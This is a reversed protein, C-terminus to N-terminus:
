LNGESTFTGPSGGSTCRWGKPGGVTATKREIRDGIIASGTAPAADGFQEYLFGTSTNAVAGPILNSKDYYSGTCTNAMTVGTTGNSNLSNNAVRTNTCASFALAPQTGCGGANGTVSALDLGACTIANPTNSPTEVTNAAITVLTMVFAATRDFRIPNGAATIVGNGVVKINKLNAAPAQVLIGDQPGNHRVQNSSITVNSSGSVSIGQGALSGGGPGTGNNSSPMRVVNGNVVCGGPMSIILIGSGQSMSEVTNGSIIPQIDGTVNGTVTIGGPGNLASTTSICCNRVRNDTVELGGLGSGVCYIGAGYFVDASGTIGEVDNGHVINYSEQSGGIYVTIGYGSHATVWNNIVKNSRPLYTGLGGPDQVLVGVWSNTGGYCHNGEILNYSSNRYVCIDCHDGAASSLFDHLYNGSVICHSSSDLFVGCWQMGEFECNLVWCYTCSQLKVGAVEATNGASTQKFKGGRIQINTKSVASFLSINQTATQIIAGQAFEYTSNSELAIAGTILAPLGPFYHYGSVKAWNNLATTDDTVGDLVAFRQAHGPPYVKNVPTVLASIEAGTIPYLLSGLIAQTFYAILNENAPDWTQLVAGAQTKLVVRYTITPDLFVPIFVGAANASLPNAVPTSLTSDSYANTATSTGTLSFTLTAGSLVNAATDLAQQSPQTFIQFASM